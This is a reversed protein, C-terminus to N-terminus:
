GDFGGVHRAVDYFWIFGGWGCVHVSFGLACLKVCGLRGCLNLVFCGWWCCVFTLVRCAFGLSLCTFVIQLVVADLRFLEFCALGVLLCGSM